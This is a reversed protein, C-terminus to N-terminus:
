RFCQMVGSCKDHDTYVVVNVVNIRFKVISTAETRGERRSIHKILYEKLFFFHLRVQVCTVKKEGVVKIFSFKTSFHKGGSNSVRKFDIETLLESLCM